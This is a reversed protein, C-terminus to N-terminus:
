GSEKLINYKQLKLYLNSRQMKLKRATAAINNNTQRLKAELFAKESAEKFERFTQYDMFSGSESVKRDGIDFPPLDESKVIREKSLIATREIFNKLERVNGPWTYGELLRLSEDAFEKQAIGNERCYQKMFSDAMVSIDETRERLPPVIIPVVNLRFFLDERFNGKEIERHIEKNTAAIVRVDVQLIEAGGVRQLEGEQLIRLVKAQASLSMDGVEDLFITGRDAQEFKGTRRGTAGSFSGKEHGFLESEILEGPIAACNVKVFPRNNRTSRSFIRHAVLEKGTGNEGMIMVRSTTPAIRDVTELIELIGPSRAIIRYKEEEARRYNDVQSKLSGLDIANKVTILLRELDFPKEIFDLAGLRSAEMGLSPTGFASMMVIGSDPHTDKFRSLLEIGDVEPMKIDLLVLAPHEAKFVSEANKWHSATLVRYGESELITSIEDLTSQEDDVILIKENM